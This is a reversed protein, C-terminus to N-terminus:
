SGAGEAIPKVKGPRLAWFKEAESKMVLAKYHNHVVDTSKHGMQNATKTADGHLALHYSGFSHRLANHPWEKIGAVIRLEALREKLKVQGVVPGEQLKCTGLWAAM